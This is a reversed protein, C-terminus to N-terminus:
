YFIEVKPGCALQHLTKAGSLGKIQQGKKWPSIFYMPFKIIQIFPKLLRIKFLRKPIEM